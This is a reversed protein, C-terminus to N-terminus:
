VSAVGDSIEVVFFKSDLQRSVQSRRRFFVVAAGSILVGVGVGAMVASNFSAGRVHLEIMSMSSALLCMLVSVRLVYRSGAFAKVLFLLLRRLDYSSSSLGWQSDDHEAFANMRMWRINLGHVYFFEDLNYIDQYVRGGLRSIVDRRIARFSSAHYLASCPPTLLSRGIRRLMSRRDLHIVDEGYMVDAAVCSAACLLEQVAGPLLARDSDLTVVYYGEALLLGALTARHQGLNRQAVALRIRVAPYDGSLRKIEEVIDLGPNDNIVIVERLQFGGAENAAVRVIEGLLGTRFFIPIVLSYHREEPSAVIM